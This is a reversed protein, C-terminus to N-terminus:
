KFKRGKKVKRSKKWDEWRMSLAVIGGFILPIALVLKLIQDYAMCVPGCFM